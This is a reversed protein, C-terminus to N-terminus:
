KSSRADGVSMKQSRQSLYSRFWKLCVASVGYETLNLLLLSHDITNFAQKLDLYLVGSVHGEDM